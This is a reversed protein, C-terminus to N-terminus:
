DIDSQALLPATKNDLLRKVLRSMGAFSGPWESRVISLGLLHVPRKDVIADRDYHPNLKWGNRLHLRLISDNGEVVACYMEKLGLIEFGFSMSLFEVALTYVRRGDDPMIMRGLECRDGPVIDALSITGAFRDRVLVVFDLIDPRRMRSELWREHEQGNIRMRTLYPGLDSGRMRLIQSTYTSDCLTLCCSDTGYRLPVRSIQLATLLM